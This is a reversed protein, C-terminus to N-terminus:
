SPGQFDIDIDSRFLAPTPATEMSDRINSVTGVAGNGLTVGDLAARIANRLDHAGTFTEAFVSFQYLGAEFDSAGEHTQVPTTSVRQWAFYPLATGEPVQIPFGRDACLAVVASASSLRTFIAEDLTM